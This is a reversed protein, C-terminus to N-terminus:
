GLSTVTRSVFWLHNKSFLKEVLLLQAFQGSLDTCSALHVSQYHCNAWTRCTSFNHKFFWRSVFGPNSGGAPTQSVYGAMPQQFDIM